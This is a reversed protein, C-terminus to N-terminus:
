VNRPLLTKFDLPVFHGAEDKPWTDAEIQLERNMLAERQAEIVDANQAIYRQANEIAAQQSEGLILSDDEQQERLSYYEWMIRGEPLTWTERYSMGLERQLKTAIVQQWPAGLSVSDGDSSPREFLAPGSTSADFYTDWKELEDRPAFRWRRLLDRKYSVAVTHRSCIQAAVVLDAPSIEGGSVLPSELAELQVSHLLCYPKLDYGYVRHSGYFFSNALRADM